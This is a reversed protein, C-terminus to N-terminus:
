NDKRGVLSYIFISKYIYIPLTLKIAELNALCPGTVDGQTVLQVRDEM